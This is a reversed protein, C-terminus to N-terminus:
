SDSEDTSASLPVSVSTLPSTPVPESTPLAVFGLRLVLAATAFCDIEVATTLLSHLLLPLPLYTRRWHNLRRHNM